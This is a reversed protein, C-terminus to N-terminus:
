NADFGIPGYEPTASTGVQEFHAASAPRWALYADHLLPADLVSMEAAEIPFLQNQRNAAPQGHDDYRAAKRVRDDWSLFEWALHYACAEPPFFIPVDVHIGPTHIATNYQVRKRNFLRWQRQNTPTFRDARASLLRNNRWLVQHREFGGIGQADVSVLNTCAELLAISPIEDCDLRLIWDTPSAAAFKEYGNEIFPKDNDFAGFECGLSDLAAKAAPAHKSDLVYRPEVGICGFYFASFKLADIEDFVPIQITYPIKM